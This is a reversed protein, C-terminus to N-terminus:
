HGVRLKNRHPSADLVRVGPGNLRLADIDSIGPVSITQRTRAWKDKLGAYGIQREPVAFIGAARAVLEPTSLGTKEIYIYLHEGEGCPRYLPIEEVEFDSPTRKIAGGTGPRDPTVYPAINTPHKMRPATASRRGGWRSASRWSHRSDPTWSKENRSRARTITVC